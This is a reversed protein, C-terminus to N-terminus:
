FLKGGTFGASEELYNIKRDSPIPLRVHSVLTIYHLQSEFPKQTSNKPIRQSPLSVKLKICNLIQTNKKGGKSIIYQTQASFFFHLWFSQKIGLPLSLQRVLITLNGLECKTYCVATLM